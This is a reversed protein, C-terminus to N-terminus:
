SFDEISQPAVTYPRDLHKELAQAYLAPLGPFGLMRWSAKGRNGGYVPDSFFGEMSLELLAEFFAKGDFGDLEATGQELASLARDRDAPSLRDLEKGHTKRLWANTAAIGAAFFERPTLPLQYGYEPRAPAFPGQRYLRAGGGWASALQRDIFTAVGCESGSPTLEDAPIFADVAAVVFAHETPSLVLPPPLEAPKAAGPPPAQPTAQPNPAAAPPPEALARSSVAAVLAPASVAAQM